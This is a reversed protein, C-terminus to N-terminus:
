RQKVYMSAQYMTVVVFATEAKGGSHTASMDWGNALYTVGVSSHMWPTRHAAPMNVKQSCTVSSAPVATVRNPPM